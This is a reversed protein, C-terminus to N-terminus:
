AVDDAFRHMGVNGPPVVENFFGKYDVFYTAGYCWIRLRAQAHRDVFFFDSLVRKLLLSEM